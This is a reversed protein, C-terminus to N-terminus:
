KKLYNEIFYTISQNVVDPKELMVYHGAKDILVLESNEIKNHFYQSYKPPTLNDNKGCIILCPVNILHVKEMIDFNDCIKYDTYTVEPNNKAVENILPEYIEKSTKRYFAGAPYANLFEQFNNQLSNLIFPSVRLRGGTGCLILAIIKDPYKFYFDQIVAGGLSHGGLIIKHLNLSEVLEKLVDVYLDLSLNSFDETKSHSPLDVAILMYNVDLKALQEKWTYSSGGSGHVFLIAREKIESDNLQYYVKKENYNLYPIIKLRPKIILKHSLILLKM